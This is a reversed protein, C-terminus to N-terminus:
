VFEKRSNQTESIWILKVLLVYGNNFQFFSFFFMRTKNFVYKKIKKTKLSEGIYENIKNFVLTGATKSPPCHISIKM